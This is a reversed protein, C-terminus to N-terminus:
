LRFLGHFDSYLIISFCISLLNQVKEIMKVQEREDLQKKREKAIYAMKLKSELDRIEISSEIIKRRLFYLFTKM